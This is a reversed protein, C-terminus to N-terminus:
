KSLTVRDPFRSPDQRLIFPRSSRTDRSSCPPRVPRNRRDWIRGRSRAIASPSRCEGAAGSAISSPRTPRRSVRGGGRERPTRSPRDGSKFDARPLVPAASPTIRPPSAYESARKQPRARPLARTRNRPARVTSAAAANYRPEATRSGKRREIHGRDTSRPETRTQTAWCCTPAFRTRAQPGRRGGRGAARRARAERNRTAPPWSTGARADRGPPLAPSVVFPRARESASM